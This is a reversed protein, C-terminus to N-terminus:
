RLDRIREFGEYVKVLSDSDSVRFGAALSEVVYKRGCIVNKDTISGKQVENSRDISDISAFLPGKTQFQDVSITDVM